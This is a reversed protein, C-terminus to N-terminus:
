GHCSRELENRTEAVDDVARREHLMGPVGLRDPIRVQADVVMERRLECRDRHESGDRHGRGSQSDAREDEIIVQAVRRHDRLVDGREIDDAVAPEVHADACTPVLGLVLRDAQGEIPGADPDLAHGFRDRDQAPQEGVPREAEAAAVVRDGIEVPM